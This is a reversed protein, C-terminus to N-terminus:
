GHGPDIGPKPEDLGLWYKLEKIRGRLAATDEPSLSASDNKMRLEALTKEADAKFRLWTPTRFDEATLAM